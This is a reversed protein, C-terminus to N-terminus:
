GACHRRWAARYAAEIHRSFHQANGLPSAELRARLEARLQSLGALDQTLAVASEVFADESQAVLEPHGLNTAICAGARQLSSNGSLTVVPVGMWAADLTTTAGSFPFTDLGIDIRQYRRLYDLRSVRGGFEVRDSEVGERAFAERVAARAYEEAYLYLRAGPVARLVRGWLALVGPHVKRYTNQCGFTVYGTGLAPLAGVELESDLSAYCWLTEPLHLCTESYVGRDSGPPDVFADTIRYDITDLGTTGMYGLWSIQVPAPQCAFVRLRGGRSHLALDVLIDIRDSRVLEAAQIDDLLRIDRFRDGAFERYWQTARDPLEVSSYLFVEFASADHHQFLPVLFQQIAHSRFDPSVYGIRLRREPERDNTLPQIYKRLPEAHRHAWARAEAYLKQADYDPNSLMAVILDSHARHDSPDLEVARRYSALADTKAGHADLADGLQRHASAVNPALEVGRRAHSLSQDPRHMQLLLRSLAMRLRPGDPGFRLAEELLMLAEAQIGADVLILALNLRAEPFNPDIELIRGFAEAAMDLRGTLRYAVGLNTLYRPNPEVSISRELYQISEPVRGTECMLVGLSSLAGHHRANMSILKRYLSEAEKVRGRRHLEQAHALPDQGAKGPKM